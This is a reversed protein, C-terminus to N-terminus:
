ISIKGFNLVSLASLRIQNLPIYARNSLAYMFYVTASKSINEVGKM